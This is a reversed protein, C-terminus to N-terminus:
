EINDVIKKTISNMNFGFFLVITMWSVTLGLITYMNYMLYNIHYDFSSPIFLISSMCVLMSIVGIIGFILSKRKNHKYLAKLSINEESLKKKIYRISLLKAILVAVAMAMIAGILFWDIKM